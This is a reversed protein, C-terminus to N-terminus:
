KTTNKSNCLPLQILFETGQGIVSRCSLMGFHKETVIQHSISLGLGTRKGVPKTTFFPDFVKNIVAETMGLGNDAIQILAKDDDVTKTSITITSPAASIEDQSRKQDREELNDIANSIINMFVQNLQGPYCDVLPLKDYKKVIEIGPKSDKSKTRNQLVMLTSDIGDHINASKFEAEDLRSFNRLSKVIERIRDSGTEMSNILKPFDTRLFEIENEEIAAQIEKDPVPYKDQYLDFIKLLTDVYEKTHVLNGHIFNVPNNIEHAVGAVLQGLSSMKETQVLQAQTKNLDNLTNELEETRKLVRRELLNNSERLQDATLKQHNITSTLILITLSITGVFSQLMVLRNTTELIAFIGNGAATEILSFLSIGVVLLTGGRMGFRFVSWILSLLFMYEVPNGLNFAQWSIFVTLGILLILEVIKIATVKLDSFGKQWSLIFPAFVLFGVTDATWWTRWVNAYEAIAVFGNSMLITTGSTANIIPSFCVSAAFILTYKVTGFFPQNQNWRQILMAAILAESFEGIGMLFGIQFSEYFTIDLVWYGLIIGPWLRFQSILLAALSIGSLPWIPTVENISAFQFALMGASHLVIVMLGNFVITKPTFINATAVSFISKKADEFGKAAFNSLTM